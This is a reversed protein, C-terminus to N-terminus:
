RRATRPSACAHYAGPAIRPGRTGGAWLILGKFQSADPSACTGSSATSARRPRCSRARRAPGDDDDGEAAARGEDKKEDKNTFHRVVHDPPIWCTSPSRRRRGEAGRAALLLPRRGRRTRAAYRRPADPTLLLALRRAAHLPARRRRRHGGGDAAPTVPRRPDLVVPGADRRGPRRGKVVLDTVPVVPLEGRPHLRRDAGRDSHRGADGPATGAPAPLSGEPRAAATRAPPRPSPAPWPRSPRASGPLAMRLPQWRAGDDFSVYIGRRPAPTSCARAADPGRPRRAHLRRGPHRRRDEDLDQRLRTTKYLYPPLRRAQVADRRRLRTGDDHPSPEISNIMRGSRCRGAAHREDLDQRRRALRPGPRRRLRGLARGARAAVRRARLDHRLVRRRHQGQTIPGGSPGLKAPDNRTLDPSIAEWSQGRRDLPLRPQRRRLAREPRAALVRDPLDVPLPVEADEAGAAWRTRRGSPSTARRGRRPPRLADICGATALRRLRHRTTPSPRRHLRERRRRRRVLRQATSRRRPRRPEPHAVTSNDQQAGYVRYPFQNDTIVHYFQATPQNHHTSWTRAATSRHRERRRRQGRDDAAPRAPRDLPRPQRRAADRITTFTKGGDISQWFGSTSRRLRHRRGEPRRLHAHLVLRAPAARARREDSWTAGGDDSRFVGGDEAEVIAWVRSPNARRSPSASAASRHGQPLGANRTIETWTDGGDTSKCLGSGPAAAARPELAHAAGRWIRPTSSARTRRTWAPRRRRGHEDVFLVQEWTQAATRRASSAASRTRARLRPRAGRRLRHRPRTPHVRVRAIHRTDACASTRGPRAPTPRTTSATATRSTAASARRAWARRLRREPRVRAVALAGVSATEFFGDSVNEWNTGGDTTKWVGGGTGGFYYVYPQDRVGAVAVVRGGRFPGIYRWRLGRLLDDAVTGARAEAAARRRRPPAPAPRPPAPPPSSSRSAAPPAPLRCPVEM